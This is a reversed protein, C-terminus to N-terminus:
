LRRIILYATLLLPLAAFGTVMLGPGSYLAYGLLPGAAIGLDNFTTFRSMFLAQNHAPARDGALSYFIVGFAISVIFNLLVAALLLHWVRIFAFCMAVLAEFGLLFFLVQKRGARDCIWGVLPATFTLFHRLGLLVGTLGAAGVAAPFGSLIHDAVIRGTLDTFMHEALMITFVSFGLKLLIKKSKKDALKGESAPTLTKPRTLNERNRTFLLSVLTIFGFLIFVARFGFIDTLIGGAIAGGGAGLRMFTQFVAIVRSRNATTSYRIASMYGEIRLLSFCAGWCIRSFLIGYFGWPITYSWTVLVSLFAAAVLPRVSRDRNVIKGAIENTVLRVLRNASLLIGIQWIKVGFSESLPPLVVYIMGDGLLSVAAIFSTLFFRTRINDRDTEQAM